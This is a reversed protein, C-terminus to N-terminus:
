QENKSKLYLYNNISINAFKRTKKRRKFNIPANKSFESLKLKKAKWIRLAKHTADKIGM